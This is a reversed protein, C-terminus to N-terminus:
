PADGGGWCVRLLRPQRALWKHKHCLWMHTRAGWKRAHLTRRQTRDLARGQTHHKERAHSEHSRSKCHARMCSSAVQSFHIDGMSLKAGPVYVPFFVKSGRSLNKIDCNGGHERPPVTRAGESAIPGATLESNCIWAGCKNPPCCLPPVRDPETAHLGRERDNWTKLLEASPACGMLGPHILGAFRVGPIHRSSTFIGEFDWIAKCAKPYHGDLFGGGNEKAFIGTFGWEHGEIPQVDCIEVVLLDGPMAGKVDIPGSLYHVQQVPLSPSPPLSLPSHSPPLSSDNM